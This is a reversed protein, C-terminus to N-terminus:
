RVCTKCVLEHWGTVVLICAGAVGTHAQTKATAQIDVAQRSEDLRLVVDVKDLPINHCLPILQSTQKAGMIGASMWVFEKLSLESFKRDRGQWLKAGKAGHCHCFGTTTDPFRRAPKCSNSYCFTSTFQRWQAQLTITQNPKSRFFPQM